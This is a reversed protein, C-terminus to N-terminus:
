LNNLVLKLADEKNKNKITIDANNEILLKAVDLYNNKICYILPTNGYEDKFQIDEINSNLKNFHKNKNNKIATNQLLENTNNNFNTNYQKLLIDFIDNDLNDKLILKILNNYDHDNEKILKACLEKNKNKIAYYLADEGNNNRLMIDANKEILKIAFETKNERAAIILATNGNKNQADIDIKNKLLTIIDLESGIKAAQMLINLGGIYQNNFDINNISEKIENYSKGTRIKNFIRLVDM